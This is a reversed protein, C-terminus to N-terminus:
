GRALQTDLRNKFPQHLMNLKNLLALSKKPSLRPAVNPIPAADM